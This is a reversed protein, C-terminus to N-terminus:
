NARTFSSYRRGTTNLADARQDKTNRGSTGAPVQGITYARVALGFFAIAVCIIEWVDEFDFGGDGDSFLPDRLAPVVLLIILIPLFSRWRFLWKGQRALLERLQVEADKLAAATGRSEPPAGPRRSM